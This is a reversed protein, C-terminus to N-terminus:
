WSFPLGGALQKTSLGARQKDLAEKVVERGLPAERAEKNKEKPPRFDSMQLVQGKDTEM